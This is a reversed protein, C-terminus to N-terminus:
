QGQRAGEAGQGRGRRRDAAFYWLLSGVILTLVLTAGVRTGKGATSPSSAPSLAAATEDNTVTEQTM